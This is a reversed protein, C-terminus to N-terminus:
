KLSKQSFWKGKKIFIPKQLNIKNNQKSYMYQSKTPKKANCLVAVEELRPVSAKRLFKTQWGRTLAQNGQVGQHRLQWRQEQHSETTSATGISETGRPPDHDAGGYLINLLWVKLYCSPLTCHFRKWPSIPFHADKGPETQASGWHTAVPCPTSSGQNLVQKEPKSLGQSQCLQTIQLGM